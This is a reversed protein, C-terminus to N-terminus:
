TNLIEEAPVGELKAMELNILEDMWNDSPLNGNTEFYEQSREYVNELIVSYHQASLGQLDGGEQEFKTFVSVYFSSRIYQSNHVVLDEQAYHAFQGVKHGFSAFTGKNFPALFLALLGEDDVDEGEDIKQANTINQKLQINYGQIGNKVMKKIIHQGLAGARTFLSQFQRLKFIKEALFDTSSTEIKSFFKQGKQVQRVMLRSFPNKNIVSSARLSRSAKLANLGLKALGVASLAVDLYLAYQKSRLESQLAVAAQKANFANICAETVSDKDAEPEEVNLMASCMELERQENLEGESLNIDAVMVDVTRSAILTAAGIITTVAALPPVFISAIAMVVSVGLMVDKFFQIQNAILAEVIKAHPGHAMSYVSCVFKNIGLYQHLYSRMREKYYNSDPNQAKVLSILHNVFEEPKDRLTKLPLFAEQTEQDLSLGGENSTGSYIMTGGVGGLLASIVSGPDGSTIDRWYKRAGNRFKFTAKAIRTNWDSIVADPNAIFALNMTLADKLESKVKECSIPRNQFTIEKVGHFVRRSKRFSETMMYPFFVKFKNSLSRKILDLKRRELYNRGKENIAKTITYNPNYTYGYGAHNVRSIMENHNFGAMLEQENFITESLSTLYGEGGCNLIKKKQNQPSSLFKDRASILEKKIYSAFTECYSSDENDDCKFDINKNYNLGLDYVHDMIVLNKVAQDIMDKGTQDLYNMGMLKEEEQISELNYIQQVNRNGPMASLFAILSRKRAFYEQDHRDLENIIAEQVGLDTQYEHERNGGIANTGLISTDFCSDYQKGYVALYLKAEIDRSTKISSKSFNNYCSQVESVTRLLKLEKLYQFERGSKRNISQLGYTLYNSYFGINDIVDDFTTPQPVSLATFARSNRSLLRDPGIRKLDPIKSLIFDQCADPISQRDREVMEIFNSIYNAAAIYMDHLIYARAALFIKMYYLRMSMSSRQSVNAIVVMMTKDLNAASEKKLEQMTYTSTNYFSEIFPHTNQPYFNDDYMRDLDAMWSAPIQNYRNRIEKIGTTFASANELWNYNAVNIRELDNSKLYALYYRPADFYIMDSYSLGALSRLKKKKSNYQRAIGIARQANAKLPGLKVQSKNGNTFMDKQVQLDKIIKQLSSFARNLDSDNRIINTFREKSMMWRNFVARNGRVSPKTPAIVEAFLSNTLFILVLFYKM